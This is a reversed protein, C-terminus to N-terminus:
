LSHMTNRRLKPKLWEAAGCAFTFGLTYYPIDVGALYQVDIFIGLVILEYARYYYCYWLTLPLALWLADFYWCTTLAIFSGTRILFQRTTM